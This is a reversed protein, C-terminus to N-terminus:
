KERLKELQELLDELQGRYYNGRENDAFYGKAHKVADMQEESPKWNNEVLEYRNSKDSAVVDLAWGRGRYCGGSIDTILYEADSDIMRITDGVRFKPVVIEKGSQHRLSRLWKECTVSNQMDGEDKCRDSQQYEGIFHLIEDIMAMDEDSWEVAKQKELWALVDNRGPWDEEVMRILAKRIREDESEGLESFIDCPRIHVLGDEDPVCDKMLELAEKYKKEYDTM